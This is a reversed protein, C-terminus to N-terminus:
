PWNFTTYAPATTDPPFPVMVVNSRELVSTAGPATVNRANGATVFFGVPEGTAPQYGALTGWRSDYYWNAAVGSPPGGIWLTQSPDRWIQIPGSCAWKGNIREVSWLCYQIAGGFGPPTYDPWSTPGDRKTFLIQMAQETQFQTVMATAPWTAVDPPSDYVDAKSLDVADPPITGAALAPGVVVTQRAVPGFFTGAQVLQLEVAYSAAAPARVVFSFTYAAGPAVTTGTRLHVETSSPYVQLLQKDELFRAGDGATGNVVGLRYTDDWTATGTNTVTVYIPANQGSYM